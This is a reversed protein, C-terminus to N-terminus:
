KRVINKKKMQSPNVCKKDDESFVEVTNQSRSFVSKAETAAHCWIKKAATVHEEARIVDLNGHNTFRCMRAADTEEAKAKTISRRLTGMRAYPHVNLFVLWFEVDGNEM